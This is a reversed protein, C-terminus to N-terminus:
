DARRLSARFQELEEPGMKRPAPRAPSEDRVLASAYARVDDLTLYEGTEDMHDLRRQAEAHFERQRELRGTAEDLTKIMFAHASDGAQEALADIRAKLEAPLRLTTTSM